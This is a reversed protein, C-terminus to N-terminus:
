RPPGMIKEALEAFSAVVVDAVARESVGEVADDARESPAYLVTPMGVGRGGRIDSAVSDGVMATEAASLGLRELAITFLPPEPKGVIVIPREAAVAVARVISGCGPLFEGDEIPLRPDVNPTVIPAGAAAARAAATLREYSLDFDNGVV